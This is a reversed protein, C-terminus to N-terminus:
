PIGKKGKKVEREESRARGAPRSSRSRSRMRRGRSMMGGDRGLAEM